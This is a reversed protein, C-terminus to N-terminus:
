RIVKLKKSERYHKCLEFEDAYRCNSCLIITSNNQVANSYDEDDIIDNDLDLKKAYYDDVENPDMESVREQINTTTFRSICMEGDPKYCGYWTRKTM